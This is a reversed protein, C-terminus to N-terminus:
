TLDSLNYGRQVKYGGRTKGYGGWAILGKVELGVLNIYICRM